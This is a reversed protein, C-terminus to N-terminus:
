DESICRVSYAPLLTPLFIETNSIYFQHPSEIGNILAIEPNGDPELTNAWWTSVEGKSTFDFYFEGAPLANFGSSNNGGGNKWLTQSKLKETLGTFGGLATVLNQWDNGSPIKWGKPALGRPDIIAYYNYLLGYIPGNEASNEYYCWAPIQNEYSKLWEAKSKAEVILDGNQFTKVDLNKNMWTQNGIQVKDNSTAQDPSETETCSSVFWLM